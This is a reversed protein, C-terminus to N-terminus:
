LLIITANRVRHRGVNRAARMLEKVELPRLYERENPYAQKVPPHNSKSSKAWRAFACSSHM